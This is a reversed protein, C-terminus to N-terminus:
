RPAEIQQLLQQVVDGAKIGEIEASPSLVLRHRLAPLAIRKIDDPIVYNRGDLAASARAARAMMAGCRPSAGVRVSPHDRTGRVLDVIYDLLEDAVPMDAIATRMAQLKELNLVASIGMASVTPMTARHGHLGLIRREEDRDPYDLIHQFLFRDLQAEPLPYTGQQEIPNQTAIVMFGAGLSYNSGDITVEREHMAQLLAAQTKPPTRNVEDALLLDTFVPGKTLVFESTEFRYINTGLVDGPMLDPTFQIRGFRLDLSAAFTQALLTKAVGPVGEFLIHGESLLCILLLDVAEDQGVIVKGINQRLDTAVAKIDSPNM